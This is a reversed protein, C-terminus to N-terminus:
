YEVCNETSASAEQPLELELELELELALVVVEEEEPGVLVVEATEVVALAVVVELGPL